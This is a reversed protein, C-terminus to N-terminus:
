LPAFAQVRPDVAPTDYNVTAWAQQIERLQADFAPDSATGARAALSALLVAVGTLILPIKM